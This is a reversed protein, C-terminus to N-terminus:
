RVFAEDEDEQKQHEMIEREMALKMLDDYPIKKEVAVKIVDEFNVNAQRMNLDRLEELQELRDMERRSDETRRELAIMPNNKEEELKAEEKKEEEMEALRVAQFNRTAGKELDYDM